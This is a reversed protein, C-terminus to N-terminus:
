AYGFAEFRWSLWNCKCSVQCVNAFAYNYKLFDIIEKDAAVFAGTAPWLNPLLQLTFMLITKFAKSTRRSWCWNEGLTGFGHADDVLFRFTSVERKLAVIEKLRGQQGRMGFVGESIVLFGEELKNPWKLRM